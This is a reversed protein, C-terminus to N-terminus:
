LHLLRRQPFMMLGLSTLSSSATSSDMTSTTSSDMTSTTSSDMTSTTSSDMTSTTSSDMTSTISSDMTSTIAREGKHCEKKIIFAINGFRWSLTDNGMAANIRTISM